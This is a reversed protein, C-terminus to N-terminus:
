HASSRIRAVLQDRTQRVASAGPAPAIAVARDAAAIAVEGFGEREIRGAMDMLRAAADDPPLNGRDITAFADTIRGACAQALALDALSEADYTSLVRFAHFEPISEGYQKANFLMLALLHRFTSNSPDLNAAERYAPIAAAIGQKSNLDDARHYAESALEMRKTASVKLLQAQVQAEIDRSLTGLSVRSRTAWSRRYLDQNAQVASRAKAPMDFGPKVDAANNFWDYLAGQAALGHDTSPYRGIDLLLEAAQDARRTWEDMRRNAFAEQGLQWYGIAAEYGLETANRLMVVDNDAM